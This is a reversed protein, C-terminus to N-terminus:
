LIYQKKPKLKSFAKRNNPCSVDSSDSKSYEDNPIINPKKSNKSLM